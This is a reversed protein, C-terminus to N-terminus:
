FLPRNLVHNIEEMEDESLHNDFVASLEIKAGIYAWIDRITDGDLATSNCLILRFASIDKLYLDKVCQM